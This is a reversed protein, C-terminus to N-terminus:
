RGWALLPVIPPVALPAEERRVESRSRLQESPSLPTAVMAERHAACPAKSCTSRDRLWVCRRKPQPRGAEASGPAGSAEISTPHEPSRDRATALAAPPRPPFPMAHERDEKTVSAEAMASCGDRVESSRVPSLSSSAEMASRTRMSGVLVDRRVSLRGGGGSRSACWASVGHLGRSATAAMRWRLRAAAAHWRANPSGIAPLPPLPPCLLSRSVCADAAAHVSRHLSGRTPCM